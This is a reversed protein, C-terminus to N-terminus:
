FELRSVFFSCLDLSRNLTRVAGDPGRVVGDVDGTVNVYAAGAVADVIPGTCPRLM